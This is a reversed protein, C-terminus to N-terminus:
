KEIIYGEKKAKELIMKQTEIIFAVKKEIEPTVEIKGNLIKKGFDNIWKLNELFKKQLEDKSLELFMEGEGTIIWNININFERFLIELKKSSPFAKGNEYAQITSQNIHLINALEKQTLKIKKRLLKFREKIPM